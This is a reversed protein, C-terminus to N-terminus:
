KVKNYNALPISRFGPKIPKAGRTNIEQKGHRDKRTKTRQLLALKKDKNRDSAALGAVWKEM